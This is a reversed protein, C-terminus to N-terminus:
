AVKIVDALELIELVEVVELDRGRARV